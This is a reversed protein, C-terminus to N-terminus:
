SRCFDACVGHRQKDHRPSRKDPQPRHQFASNIDQRASERRAARKVERDRIKELQSQKAILKDYSGYQREVSARQNDDATKLRVVAQVEGAIKAALRNRRARQADTLKVGSAAKRNLDELTAGYHSQVNALKRTQAEYAAYARQVGSIKSLKDNAADGAGGLTRFQNAIASVSKVISDNIRGGIAIALEMVRDAM